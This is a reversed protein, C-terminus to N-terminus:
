PHCGQPAEKRPMKVTQPRPGMESWGGPGTLGAAGSLWASLGWLGTQLTCPWRTVPLMVGVQGRHMGPKCSDPRSLAPSCCPSRLQSLEPRAGREPFDQGPRWPGLATCPPSRLPRPPLGLGETLDPDCGLPGRCWGHPCVSTVHAWLCWCLGERGAGHGLPFRSEHPLCPQLGSLLRYGWVERGQSSVAGRGWPTERQVGQLLPGSEARSVAGTSPLRTRGPVARLWAALSADPRPLAAASLPEQCM